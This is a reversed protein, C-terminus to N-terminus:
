ETVLELIPNEVTEIESNLPKNTPCNRNPCNTQGQPIVTGCTPCHLQDSTISNKKM